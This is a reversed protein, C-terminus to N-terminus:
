QLSLLESEDQAMIFLELHMFEGSSTGPVRECWAVEKLRWVDDFTCRSTQPISLSPEGEQQSINWAPHRDENYIFSFGIPPIKGRPIRQQPVQIIQFAPICATKM